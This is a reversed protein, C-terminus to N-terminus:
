DDFNRFFSKEMCQEYVQKAFDRRSQEPMGEIIKMTMRVKNLLELPKLKTIYEKIEPNMLANLDLEKKEMLSTKRYEDIVPYLSNNIVPMFLLRKSTRSLDVLIKRKGKTGISFAHIYEEYHKNVPETFKGEYVKFTYEPMLEQLLVTSLIATQRCSNYHYMKFLAKNATLLVFKLAPNFINVMYDRVEAEQKTLEADFCLKDVM